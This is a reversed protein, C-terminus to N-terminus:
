FLQLYGLIKRKKGLLQPLQHQFDDVANGRVFVKARVGLVDQRHHEAEQLYSDEERVVSCKM